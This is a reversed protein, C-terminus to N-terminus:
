KPSQLVQALREIHHHVGAGLVSECPLMVAPMRVFHDLPKEVLIQLGLRPHAFEIPLKASEAPESRGHTSLRWGECMCPSPFQRACRPFRAMQPRAACCWSTRVQQLPKSPRAAAQAFSGACGAMMIEFRRM